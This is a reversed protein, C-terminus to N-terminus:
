ARTSPGRGRLRPSRGSRALCTPTPRRSRSRPQRPRAPSRSTRDRRTGRRARRATREDADIAERTPETLQQQASGLTVVRTSLSELGSSRSLSRSSSLRRHSQRREPRPMVLDHDLAVAHLEVDRAIRRSRRLITTVAAASPLWPRVSAVVRRLRRHLRAAWCPDFLWRLPAICEAECVSAIRTGFAPRVLTTAVSSARSASSGSCFVPGVSVLSDVATSATTETRAVPGRALRHPPAGLGARHRLAGGQGPRSRCRALTRHLRDRRGPRRPPAHEARPEGAPGRAHRVRRPDPRCRAPRLARAGRQQVEARFMAPVSSSSWAPMVCASSTDNGECPAPSRRPGIASM